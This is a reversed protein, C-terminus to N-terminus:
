VKENVSGTHHLRQPICHCNHLIDLGFPDFNTKMATALIFRRVVASLTLYSDQTSFILLLKCKTPNM